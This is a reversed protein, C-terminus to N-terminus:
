LRGNRMLRSICTLLFAVDATVVSMKLKCEFGTWLYGIDHVIHEDSAIGRGSSRGVVRVSGNNAKGESRIGGSIHALIKRAHRGERRYVFGLGEHV